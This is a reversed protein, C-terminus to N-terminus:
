TTITDGSNLLISLAEATGTTNYRAQFGFTQIIPGIGSVPAAGGILKVTPMVFELRYDETTDSDLDGGNYLFELKIDNRLRFKDLVTEDDFEATIQGAITQKATRVPEKINLSGLDSRDGGSLNNNVDLSWEQISVATDDVEMTFHEDLIPKDTPFTEATATTTTETKGIVSLTAKLLEGRAQSFSASNIKCGAYVFSGKDRDVELSLGEPLATEPTFTKLPAAYTTGGLLHKLLLGFGYFNMEVEVTGDVYVPLKVAARQAHGHSGVDPFNFAANQKLSESILRVFKTRSVATGWTTEEGIGLFAVDGLGPQAM